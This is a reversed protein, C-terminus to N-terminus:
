TQCTPCLYATRGGISATVIADGCRGCADRMYVRRERPRGKVFAIRGRTASARMVAVLRAWARDFLDRGIAAAPTTPAMGLEFLLENRIVNGVGAIIRQDLLAAGIALKSAHLRRWAVEPDADRRLPDPGLSAVLAEWQEASWLECRIPAILDWTATPVALRLRVQPRPPGTVAFWHGAMGLHVHVLPTFRYCLHKGYAEVGALVQRDIAAAGEVFRGQPSTARVTSGALDRAQRRAYHHILHGEPV